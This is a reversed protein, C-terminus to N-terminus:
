TWPCVCASPVAQCPGTSPAWRSRGPTLGFEEPIAAAPSWEPLSAAASVALDTMDRNVWFLM